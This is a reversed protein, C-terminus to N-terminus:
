LKVMVYEGDASEVEVLCWDPNSRKFDRIAGILAYMQAGTIHVGNEAAAWAALAATVRNLVLGTPLPLNINTDDSRVIIRM